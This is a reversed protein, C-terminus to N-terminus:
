DTASSLLWRPGAFQNLIGGDPRFLMWWESDGDDVDPKMVTVVLDREFTFEATGDADVIEAALLRRGDARGVSLDVQEDTASKWTALTQGGESIRWHGSYIWLHWEGFVVDTSSAQVMAGLDFTLMAGYGRRARWCLQDALSAM